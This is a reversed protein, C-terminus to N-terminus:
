TIPDASLADRGSQTPRWRWPSQKSPGSKEGEAHGDAVLRRLRESSRDAPTGSLDFTRVWYSGYFRFRADSAAILEGLSIPYKVPKM